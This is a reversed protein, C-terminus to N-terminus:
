KKVIKETRIANDTTVRVVYVGNTLSSLDIQGKQSTLVSRGNVDFMEVKQIGDGEVNLKDSAPNPYISVNVDAVENIANVGIVKFNKLLLEYGDLSNHHRIAVKFDGTVNAPIAATRHVFDSSTEPLTESFISTTDSGQIVYVSYHDNYGIIDFAVKYSGSEPMTLAPTVLWNDPDLPLIGWFLAESYAIVDGTELTGVAWGENINEWCIDFGEEADYVSTFDVVYPLSQARCDVAVIDLTQTASLGAANTVTASVTHNGATTFTYALTSGTTSQATGDVTWAVTTEESVAIITCVENARVKADGYLALDPAMANGIRVDDLQIYYSKGADSVNRFAVRVTQGAYSSMDITRRTYGYEDITNDDYVMTFSATDTSANTSVYVKLHNKVGDRDNLIAYYTLYSTGAPLTVIPSIAYSNGGAASDSGFVVFNNGSHAYSQGSYTYVTDKGRFLFNWCDTAGDFDELWPTVTIAKSCDTVNVHLTDYGTVDHCTGAVVVTHEGETAFTFNLTNEITSQTEGDVNWAYSAEAFESSATFTASNGLVINTPGQLTVEPAWWGGIRLDDIMMANCDAGSRHVIAIRVNQGAYQTLDIYHKKYVKYSSTESYLVTTFDATDTSGSSLRIEYKSEITKWLNTYAYWSLVLALDSSPLAFVPSIAWQNAAETSDTYDLWLCGHGQHANSGQTTYSVGIGNNGCTTNYTNFIWSARAANTDEFGETWPFQSITDGADKTPVSKIMREATAKKVMSASKASKIPRLESQAFSASAMLAVAAIFTFAKKM